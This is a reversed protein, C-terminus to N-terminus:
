HWSSATRSASSSRGISGSRGAPAASAPECEADLKMLDGYTLVTREAGTDLLFDLELQRGDPLDVFIPVVPLLTGDQEKWRGPVIM